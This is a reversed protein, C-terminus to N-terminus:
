GKVFVLKTGRSRICICPSKVVTQLLLSILGGYPSSKGGILTFVNLNYTGAVDATLSVNIPCFGM